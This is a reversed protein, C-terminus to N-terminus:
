RLFPLVSRESPGRAASVSAMMSSAATSPKRKMTVHTALFALAAQRLTCNSIANLHADRDARREAAPDRGMAVQGLLGKAQERAQEATVEGHRGIKVFCRKGARGHGKPRYRVIYTKTGSAEVQLGFGKLETDWLWHRGRSPDASDVSRKTLKVNGRLETM